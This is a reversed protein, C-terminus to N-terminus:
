VLSSVGLSALHRVEPMSRCRKGDPSHYYTDTMGATRGTQRVKTEVWWGEPLRLTRACSLCLHEQVLADPNTAQCFPKSSMRSMSSM